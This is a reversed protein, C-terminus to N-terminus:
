RAELGHWLALDAAQKPDRVVALLDFDSRHGTEDDDVWDGRAHSGFLVLLGKPLAERYIAVLAALKARKTEPLHDLSTKMRDGGPTSRLLAPATRSRPSAPARAKEKAVRRRTSALSKM